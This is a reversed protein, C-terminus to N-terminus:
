LNSDHLMSGVALLKAGAMCSAHHVPLARVKLETLRVDLDLKGSGTTALRSMAQLMVVQVTHALPLPQDLKQEDSCTCWRM